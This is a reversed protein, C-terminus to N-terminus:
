RFGSKNCLGQQLSAVKANPALTSWVGMKVQPRSAEADDGLTHCDCLGVPIGLAYSEVIFVLILERRLEVDHYFVTLL